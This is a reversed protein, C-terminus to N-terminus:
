AVRRDDRDIRLDAVEVAAVDQDVAGLDRLDRGRDVGVVGLDDVAGVLDGDGAEDVGVAVGPLREQAVGPRVPRQRLIEGADADDHAPEVRRLVVVDAVEEAREIREIAADGREVVPRVVVVRRGMGVRHDLAEAVGAEAGDEAVAVGVGFPERRAVQRGVVGIEAAHPLLLKEDSSPSIVM